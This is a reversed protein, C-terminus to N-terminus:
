KDFYAYREKLELYSLYQEFESRDPVSFRDNKELIILEKEALKQLLQKLEFTEIGLSEALDVPLPPTLDGEARMLEWRLQLMLRGLNSKFQFNIMRFQAQTLRGALKKLMRMAIEGNSRVMMDFQKLDIVLLRAPEIVTATVPQETEMVLALEGCFEGPGLTELVTETKHVRKTIRIRGENIVWLRNGLEGERFLVTGPEYIKGHKELVQQKDM